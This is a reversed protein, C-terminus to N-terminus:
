HVDHSTVQVLQMSTNQSSTYCCGIYYTIVVTHNAGEAQRLPLPVTQCDTLLPLRSNVTQLLRSCSGWKLRTPWTCWRRASRVRRWTRAATVGVYRRVRLRRRYVCVVEVDYWSYCCGHSCATLPKMGELCISSYFQAKISRCADYISVFKGLISRKTSPPAPSLPWTVM